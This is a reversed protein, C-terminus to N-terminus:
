LSIGKVLVVYRCCSTPLWLYHVDVSFRRWFDKATWAQMVVLASPNNLCRHVVHADIVYFAYPLRVRRPFVCQSVCFAAMENTGHSQAVSGGCNAIFSSIFSSIGSNSNEWPHLALPFFLWYKSGHWGTDVREEGKWRINTPAPAFRQSVICVPCFMWFYFKPSLACINGRDTQTRSWWKEWKALTDREEKLRFHLFCFIALLHRFVVKTVDEM